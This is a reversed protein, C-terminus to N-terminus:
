LNILLESKGAGGERVEVRYYYQKGAKASTDTFLKGGTTGLLIEGAGGVTERYVKFPGEFTSDWSLTLGTGSFEYHINSASAPQATAVVVSTSVPTTTPVVTPAVVPVNVVPGGTGDGEVEVPASRVITGDELLRLAKVLIRAVLGRELPKDIYIREEQTILGLDISKSVAGEYWPETVPTQVELVRLLMTLFEELKVNGDPNAKGDSGKIIVPKVEGEFESQSAFWIAPAYWATKNVDKFAIASIKLTELNIDSYFARILLTATAARNIFSDVGFSGDPNGKVVGSDKLAKVAAYIEPVTIEKVVDTFAHQSAPSWTFVKSAFVAEAKYAVIKKYSDEPVYKPYYRVTKQGPQYKSLKLEGTDPFNRDNIGSFISVADTGEPVDFQMEVPYESTVNKDNFVILTQADLEYMRYNEGKLLNIPNEAVAVVTTTTTEVPVPPTVATTTDPPTPTAPVTPTIAVPAAESKQVTIQVQEQVGGEAAFSLQYIGEQDAKFLYEGRGADLSVNASSVTAPFVSVVVAVADTIVGGRTGVPRLAVAVATGVTTKQPATVELFKLRDTFVIKKEESVSGQNSVTMIVEEPVADTVQFTTRGGQMTKVGSFQATSSSLVVAIDQNFDSFLVGDQDVAEVSLNITEGTRARDFNSSIRFDTFVKAVVPPQLISATTSNTVLTNDTSAVANTLSAIYQEANIFVAQRKQDNLIISYAMDPNLIVSVPDITKVLIERISTPFYSKYGANYLDKYNPVWQLDPMISIHAHPTTADGTSGIKGLEMGSSISQGATVSISDLHGVTYLVRLTKAGDSLDSCVSVYNGYGAKSVGADIVLGASYPYVTPLNINDPSWWKTVFDIAGHMSKHKKITNYVKSLYQDASREYSIADILEGKLAENFALDYTFWSTFVQNKKITKLMEKRNAEANGKTYSFLGPVPSIEFAFGAKPCSYGELVMKPQGLISGAFYASYQQFLYVLGTLFVLAVLILIQKWPLPQHAKQAM